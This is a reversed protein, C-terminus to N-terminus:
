RIVLSRFSCSHCQSGSVSSNRRASSEPAYGQCWHRKNVFGYACGVANLDSRAACLRNTTEGVGCGVELLSKASEPVQSVTFDLAHSIRPNGSVYCSLLKNSFNDYFGAIETRSVADAQNSQGM